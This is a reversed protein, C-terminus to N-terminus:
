SGSGATGGGRSEEFQHRVQAVVERQPRLETNVMVDAQRYFPAREELMRRITGIPDDNQLLPRHSQHRTREHIAEANAWLCVVLAHQKLAALNKPNVIAGGGTAIVLQRQQALDAIVESELRRFATEGESAFIESIALGARDEILTDTDVFQFGLDAAVQRGVTSKGCGMFGVLALNHIIRDAPM